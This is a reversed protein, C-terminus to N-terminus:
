SEQIFLMGMIPGNIHQMGHGHAVVVFVCISNIIMNILVPRTAFSFNGAIETNSPVRHM